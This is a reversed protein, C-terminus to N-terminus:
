VCSFVDRSWGPRFCNGTWGAPRPPPCLHDTLSFSELGPSFDLCRLVVTQCKVM